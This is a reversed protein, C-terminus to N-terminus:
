RPNSKQGEDYADRTTVQDMSIRQSGADIKRTAEHALRQTASTFSESPKEAFDASRIGRFPLKTLVVWAM